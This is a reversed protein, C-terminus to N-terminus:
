KYAAMRNACHLPHGRQCCLCFFEIEMQFLYLVKGRDGHGHGCFHVVRSYVGFCTVLYETSLIHALFLLLSEKEEPVLFLFLGLYSGKKFLHTTLINKFFQPQLRNQSKKKSVKHGLRNIKSLLNNKHSM